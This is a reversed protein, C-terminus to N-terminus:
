LSARAPDWDQVSDVLHLAPRAHGAAEVEMGEAFIIQPQDFVLQYTVTAGIATRALITGDSVLDGVPVLAQDAGFLLEAKWGSLGIRQTPALRLHRWPVGPGAAEPAITIARSPSLARNVARVPQAGHDRTLVMDGPQLSEIFEPGEPTLILTGTVLGTGTAPKAHASPTRHLM